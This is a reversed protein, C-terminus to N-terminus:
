NPPLFPEVLTLLARPGALPKMTITCHATAASPLQPPVLATSASHLCGIADGEVLALDGVMAPKRGLVPLTALIPRRLRM